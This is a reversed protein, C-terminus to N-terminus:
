NSRAIKTEVIKEGAVKFFLSIKKLKNIEANEKLNMLMIHYGGPKFILSDFPAIVLQNVHRMGTMGDKKYTEHIEVDDSIDSAARYLTDSKNNNNIVTCYFATNFTEPAPRMWANKIIITNEGQLFFLALILFYKM